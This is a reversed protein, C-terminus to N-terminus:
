RPQAPAYFFPRVVEGAPQGAAVIVARAQYSGPTLAALDLDTRAVILRGDARVGTAARTILPTPARESLIEFRVDVSSPTVDAAAFVEVYATVRDESTRYVIPHLAGSAAGAPALIVSSVRLGGAGMTAAVFPREVLGTRRLADIGAVRLTYRGEPVVASFAHRGDLAIQAGSAAIVGNADILVYGMLVEAAGRASDAEMTVVVRLRSADAEPHTSTAVRVPLETAPRTRRLLAVLEEERSPPTPAPPPLRFVTRARVVHNRRAVDVSIRHAAGDRDRDGAEFALLYYGSLETAIRRFPAPDSGVLRYVAGRSAGALRSLGDGRLNVDRMATPSVRDQAAEFLPVELHLAHISVRAEHAKAALDSLDVLRPDVVMGESLLIVAKPGEVERLGVIIGELASLSIRAQTRAHQSLARAEQELQEPCADRGGADDAARALSVYDTLSRGCERLVADALRTRSGDAIETAELLGLNFQLFMPDGQGTFRELRSKLAAHQRTFVLDATRNLSTVAVRDRPDLSDLFGAAARLAARGELQRIHSQDVAIVILRGDDTENSTFYQVDRLASGPEHRAFEVYQASVVRRTEGDVQLSFDGAALGDVVRGDPGTVTADVTVLDVRSRFIPQAHGKSSSLTMGLSTSPHASDVPPQAGAILTEAVLGLAAAATVLQRLTKWVM